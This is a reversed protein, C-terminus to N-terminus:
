KVPIVLVKGTRIININQINNRKAITDVSVGYKRAISSLTDGKKITYNIETQEYDAVSELYEKAAGAIANALKERNSSKLLNEYDQPNTLFASELLVAPCTTLRTLSLNAKRISRDTYEMAENVATNIIGAADQIQNYSYFTLFGASKSYDSTIGMANGPISISLDPKLNRIAAVRENLSYYKDQSRTLVVKAGM